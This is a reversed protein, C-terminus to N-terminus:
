FLQCTAFISMSNTGTARSIIPRVRCHWAWVRLYYQLSVANGDGLKYFFYLDTFSYIITTGYGTVSMVTAKKPFQLLKQRDGPIDGV